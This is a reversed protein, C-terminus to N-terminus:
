ETRPVRPEESESEADMGGGSGSPKTVFQSITHHYLMSEYYEMMAKRDAKTMNQIQQNILLRSTNFSVRATQASVSSEDALSIIEVIADHYMEDRSDILREDLPPVGHENVYGSWLERQQVAEGTAGIPPPPVVVAQYQGYSGEEAAARGKAEAAAISQYNNEIQRRRMPALQPDKFYPELRARAAAVEQTTAQFVMPDGSTRTEGLMLRVAQDLASQMEGATMKAPDRGNLVREVTDLESMVSSNEKERQADIQQKENKNRELNSQRNLRHGLRATEESEQARQNQALEQRYSIREQQKFSANTIDRERRDTLISLREQQDRDLQGRANASNLQAWSFEMESTWQDHRDQLEAEAKQKAVNYELGAAVGTGVGKGLSALASIISDNQPVIGMPQAPM